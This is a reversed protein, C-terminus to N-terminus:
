KDQKRKQLQKQINLFSPDDKQDKKIQNWKKEKDSKREQAQLSQKKMYEQGFNSRMPTIDPTYKNEMYQQYQRSQDNNLM